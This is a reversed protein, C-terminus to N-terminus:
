MSVMIGCIGGVEVMAIRVKSFARLIIASIQSISGAAEVIRSENRISCSALFRESLGVLSILPRVRAFVIRSAGALFVVEKWMVPDSRSLSAGLNMGLKDLLKLLFFLDLGPRAPINLSCFGSCACFREGVFVFSSFKRGFDLPM